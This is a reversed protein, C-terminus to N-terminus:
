TLKEGHEARFRKGTLLSKMRRALDYTGGAGGRGQLTPQFKSPDRRISDEALSSQATRLGQNLAEGWSQKSDGIRDAVVLPEGFRVLCEPLREEWFVYELAMPLVVGTTLKTCLHPLGPMLAATHDRCDCFRGEPTIWLATAPANLIAVSQKLFAAAGSHSSLNVGYFGLKAFVRYKELATADIPAHFQRPSFLVRNLYHAILPDWWAPHNGYIVLPGEIPKEDPRFGESAM